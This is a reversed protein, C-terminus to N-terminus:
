CWNLITYAQCQTVGYYREKLITMFKALNFGKDVWSYLYRNSGISVNAKTYKTGKIQNTLNSLLSAIQMQSDTTNWGGKLAAWRSERNCFITIIVLVRLSLLDSKWRANLAVTSSSGSLWIPFIHKIDYASLSFRITWLNSLQARSYKLCSSKFGIKLSFGFSFFFRKFFCWPSWSAVSSFLLIGWAVTVDEQWTM